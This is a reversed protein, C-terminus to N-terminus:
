SCGTSTKFPVAINTTQVADSLGPGQKLQGVTSYRWSVGYRDTFSMPGVNTVLYRYHHPGLFKVMEGLATNTINITGVSCAPIDYLSFAFIKQVYTTAPVHNFVVVGVDLVVYHVPANSNNAIVTAGLLNGKGYNDQAFSVGQADHQQQQTIANVALQHQDSYSAWGIVAAAVTALWIVSAALLKLTSVSHVKQWWRRNQTPKRPVAAAQRASAPVRV